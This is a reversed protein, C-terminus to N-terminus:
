TIEKASILLLSSLRNTHLTMLQTRTTLIPRLKLRLLVTITQQIVAAGPATRKRLTCLVIRGDRGIGYNSSAQADKNAFVDGCAEVSLQGAMCHITITDIKHTRHTINSNRPDNKNPSPKRCEVLSSNTFTLKEGDITIVTGALSAEDSISREAELDDTEPDYGDVLGSYEEARVDIEADTQSKGGSCGALMPIMLSVCLVVSMLRILLNKKM